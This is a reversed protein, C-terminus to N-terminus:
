PRWGCLIEGKRNHEVARRKEEITMVAIVVPSLRRPENATCFDGTKATGACGALFLMAAVILGRVM